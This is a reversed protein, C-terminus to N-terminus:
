RVATMLGTLALVGLGAAFNLWAIVRFRAVLGALDSEKGLAARRAALRLRPSVAQGLFIIMGVSLLILMHKVFLLSSWLNSFAFMGEYNPNAGMQIMGTAALIALAGYAVPPARRALVAAWSEGGAHAEAARPAVLLPLAASWGIWIITAFLHITNSLGVVWFRADMSCTYNHITFEGLPYGIAFPILYECNM